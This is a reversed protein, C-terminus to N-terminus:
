NFDVVRNGHQRREKLVSDVTVKSRVSYHFSIESDKISQYNIIEM